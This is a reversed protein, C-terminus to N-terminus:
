FLLFNPVHSVLQDTYLLSVSHLKAQTLIALPCRLDVDIVGLKLKQQSFCFIFIQNLNLYELEFGNGSLAGILCTEKFELDFNDQLDLDIFEM